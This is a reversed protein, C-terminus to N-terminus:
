RAAVIFPVTGRQEATHRILVQEDPFHKEAYIAAEDFEDFVKVLDQRAVLAWGVRNEALIQPRLRHYAELQRDMAESM